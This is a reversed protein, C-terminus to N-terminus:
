VQQQIALYALAYLRAETQSLVWGGVSELRGERADQRIHEKIRRREDQISAASPDSPLGLQELLVQPGVNLGAACARGVEQLGGDRPSLGTLRYIWDDKFLLHRITKWAGIGLVGAGVGSAALKFFGRRSLGFAPM